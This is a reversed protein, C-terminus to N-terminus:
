WCRSRWKQEREDEGAQRTRTVWAQADEGTLPHPAVGVVDLWNRRAPATKKRAQEILITALELQEDPSLDATQTVLQIVRQTM